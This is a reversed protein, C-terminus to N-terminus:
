RKTNKNWGPKFHNKANNEIVKLDDPSLLWDLFRSIMRYPLPDNPNIGKERYANEFILKSIEKDKLNIDQQALSKQYPFLEARQKREQDLNLVETGTKGKLANVYDTDTKTKLIQQYGQLAQLTMGLYDVRPAAEQRPANYKAIMTQNGPTGQGYILNPNLGAETYRKMQNLPSNYENQEKVMQKEQEYGYAALSKNAANAQETQYEGTYQKWTKELFNSARTIGSTDWGGKPTWSVLNNPDQFAM